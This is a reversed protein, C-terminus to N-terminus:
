KKIKQANDEEEEADFKVWIWIPEHKTEINLPKIKENTKINKFPPKPHGERIWDPIFLCNKQHKQTWKELWCYRCLKNRPDGPTFPPTRVTTEFVINGMKEHREQLANIMEEFSENKEEQQQQQQQQPKNKQNNNTRRTTTKEVYLGDHAIFIIEFQDNKQLKISNEGNSITHSKMQKYCVKEKKDNYKVLKIPHYLITPLKKNLTCHTTMTVIISDENRSATLNNILQPNNDIVSLHQVSYNKIPSLLKLTAPNIKIRNKTNLLFSSCTKIIIPTGANKEFEEIFKQCISTIEGHSCNEIMVAADRVIKKQIEELESNSDINAADRVNIAYIQNMSAIELLEMIVLQNKHLNSTAGVIQTSDVRITDCYKELYQYHAPAVAGCRNTNNWEVCYATLARRHVHHYCKRYWREWCDGCYYHGYGDDNYGGPTEQNCSNCKYSEMGKKQM